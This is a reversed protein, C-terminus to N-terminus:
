CSRQICNTNAGSTRWSQRSSHTKVNAYHPYPASDLYAGLAVNLDDVIIFLVNPRDDVGVTRNPAAAQLLFRDTGDAAHARVALCLALVILPIKTTRTHHM